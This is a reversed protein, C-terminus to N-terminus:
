ASLKIIYLFNIKYMKLKANPFSAIGQKDSIEIYGELEIKCLDLFRMYELTGSIGARDRRDCSPYLAVPSALIDSIKMEVKM